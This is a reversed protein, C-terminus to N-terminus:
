EAARAQLPVLILVQVSSVRCELPLQNRRTCSEISGNGEDEGAKAHNLWVKMMCPVLLYVADLKVMILPSCEPKLTHEGHISRGCCDQEVLPRGEQRGPGEAAEEECRRRDGHNRSKSKKHRNKTPAESSPLVSQLLLFGSSYASSKQLLTGEESCLGNECRVCPPLPDRDQRGAERLWSRGTTM